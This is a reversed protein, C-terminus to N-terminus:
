DLGLDEVMSEGGEAEEEMGALVKKVEQGTDKLRSRCLKILFSARKVKEAVADVDIEESEIDEIIKELESLAQSYAIQRSRSM